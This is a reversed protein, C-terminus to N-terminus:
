LCDKGFEEASYATMGAAHMAGGWATAHKLVMTLPNLGAAVHSHKRHTKGFFVECCDWEGFGSSM